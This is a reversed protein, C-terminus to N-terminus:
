ILDHFATNAGLYADVFNGSRLRVEVSGQIHLRAIAKRVPTRFAGFRGSISREDIAM